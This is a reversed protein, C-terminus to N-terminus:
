IYQNHAQSINPVFLMPLSPSFEQDRQQLAWHICQILEWDLCCGNRHYQDPCSQEPISVHKTDVQFIPWCFFWPKLLVFWLQFQFHGLLAPMTEYKGTTALGVHWTGYCRMMCNDFKDLSKGSQFSICAQSWHTLHSHFSVLSGGQELYAVFSSLFSNPHFWSGVHLVFYASAISASSKM